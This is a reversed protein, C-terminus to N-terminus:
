KPSSADTRRERQFEYCGFPRGVIASVAKCTQCPRNSWQHPDSQILDLAIKLFVRLAAQIIEEPEQDAM